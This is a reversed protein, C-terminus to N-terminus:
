WGIGFVMHEPNPAMITASQDGVDDYAFGYALGGISHDHWFKAYWNAPSASYWASPTEWKSPDHMIHRNFAACLQAEIASETSNGTALVGKGELIDQTTPKGIITFTGGVYAGNGKNIETFVFQNGQTKGSFRRAGGWMDITLTNTSYYTWVENVYADFYNGNVQGADFSTKAPALIRYPSPPTANFAVPLDTIYSGFLAARSQKIGTQMHWNNAGYVDQVLPFGFQDVQTTNIWLGINNYSFEYWDFYVDINPDTPNLVNPGAFGVQGNGDSVIKIFMPGGLSVFVRGSDMKPIKLLKSQALTFFYNSYNQGGKSLHGVADNDALAAAVITGDPKLWSFQGNTPNRAIVAVYVQDDRWQGNTNNQLDVGIFGPYITYNPNNVVADYYVEFEYLSYGYPTGRTTGTMRIFRGNVTPFNLTETGGAGATQTYATTWGSTGNASVEIKYAKGY